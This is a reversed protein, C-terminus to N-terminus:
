VVSKRDVLEVPSQGLELVQELQERLLELLEQQQRLVEQV